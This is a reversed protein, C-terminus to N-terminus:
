KAVVKQPGSLQQKSGTNDLVGIYYWYTKGSEASTDRWQYAGGGDSPVVRITDKNVRVFPGTEADARYIAYGYVLEEHAVSWKLLPGNGAPPALDTKSVGQKIAQKLDLRSDPAVRSEAGAGSKAKLEAARQMEKDFDKVETKAGVLMGWVYIPLKRQYDPLDVTVLGGVSGTQQDSAIRLRVLKCGKAAPVCPVAEATGKTREVTIPGVRFDQHSRSTLRIMFENANGQRMLGLSFPNADPIVEGHVDTKVAVWVQQQQPANVRLKIFDSEHLGWPADDKVKAHVTRGDKDISVSVYDPASLVESIHFDRVERSGLTLSQETAPSGLNVVGFNLAPRPEDLITAVYGIAEASREAQGPENTELHFIRRTRGVSNGVAIRVQAYAVGHPPVVLSAPSISDGQVTVSTKSIAIPKDGDNRLELSCEVTSFQYTEPFQCQSLTLHSPARPAALLALSTIIEPLM